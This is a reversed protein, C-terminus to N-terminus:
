KRVGPMLKRNPSPAGGHVIKIRQSAILEDITIRLMNPPVMKGLAQRALWEPVPKGTRVYQDTVFNAVAEMRIMYVNGGAAALALNMEPEADLLVAKASEFDEIQIGPTEPHRGLAYCLAIKAVQLHRRSAYGVLMPDAPIPEYNDHKWSNLADGADRDWDWFGQAKAILSIRPFLRRLLNEEQKVPENGFEFDPTDNAKEYDAYIFLIRTPLGQEYANPPFGEAFWAPTCGSLINVFLNEALDLKRSITEAAYDGCDWVDALMALTDPDPKRLFTGWESTLLAITAKRKPVSGTTDLAKAREGLMEIFREHTISNPCLGVEEQTGALLRAHRIAMTKGCGPKGVLLIYLNPYLVLGRRISTYVKRDSVTAITALIAWRRYREPSLGVDTLKVYEDILDM